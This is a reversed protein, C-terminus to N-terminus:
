NLQVITAVVATGSAESGMVMTKFANEGTMYTILSVTSGDPMIATELVAKLARDYVADSIVNYEPVASRDIDHRTKTRTPLNYVFVYSMDTQKEVEFSYANGEEDYAQPWSPFGDPLKEQTFTLANADFSEVIAGEGRDTLYSYTSGEIRCPYGYGYEPLAHKDVVRTATAKDGEFAVSYIAPEVSSNWNWGHSVFYKGGIYHMRPYSGEIDPLGKVLFANNGVIFAPNTPINGGYSLVTGLHGQGDAIAYAINAHFDLNVQDMTRGNDVLKGLGGQYNGIAWYLENGVQAVMGYQKLDNSTPTTTQTNGAIEIKGEWNLPLVNLNTLNFLAGDTKRLLFNFHGPRNHSANIEGQVFDRGWKDIPLADLDDCYYQCGYLWLYDDGVAFINEITLRLAKTDMTSDVENFYFIAAHMNGDADVTYLFKTTEEDQGEGARMKRPANAPTGEQVLALAKANNLDVGKFTMKSSTKPEDQCGIMLLIAAVLTLLYFFKTKMIITQKLGKRSCLYSFSKIYAFLFCIFISFIKCIDFFHLIKAHFKSFHNLSDFM